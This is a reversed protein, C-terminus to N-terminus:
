PQYGAPLHCSIEMADYLLRGIEVTHNDMVRFVFFHRARKGSRTLHCTRASTHIEPRQRTRLHYPNSAIDMISLRILERYENYKKDGFRDRTRVLVEQIDRQAQYSLRIRWKTM